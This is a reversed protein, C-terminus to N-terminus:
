IGCKFLNFLGIFAFILFLIGSFKQILNEPIKTSLIKGFIITIFDSVIMGAIAGIILFVKYTPYEIGLGISALFTKDGLEGVAIASAIFLSYKLNNKLIKNKNQLNESSKNDSKLTLIGFVIFSFYTVLKLIYQFTDNQINGLFSGFLIAVGHSLLSGYPLM